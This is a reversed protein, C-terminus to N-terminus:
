FNISFGRLYSAYQRLVIPMRSYKGQLNGYIHRLDEKIEAIESVINSMRLSRIIGTDDRVVRFFTEVLMNHNEELRKADKLIKRLQYTGGGGDNMSEYLRKQQASKLFRKQKSFNFILILIFFMQYDSVTATDLFSRAKKKAKNLYYMPTVPQKKIILYLAIFCYASFSLNAKLPDDLVKIVRELDKHALGKIIM